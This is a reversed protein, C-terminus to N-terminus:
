DMFNDIIEANQTTFSCSVFLVLFAVEKEYIPDFNSSKLATLAWYLEHKNTLVLKEHLDRCRHFSYTYVILCVVFVHTFCVSVSYEVDVCNYVISSFAIEFSHKRRKGEM